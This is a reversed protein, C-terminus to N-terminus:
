RSGGSPRTKSRSRSTIWKMGERKSLAPLETADIFQSVRQPEVKSYQRLAWGIAKQIFFEKSDANERALDALLEWDTKDGYKLQFIIATRRLWMDDSSRWESIWALRDQPYEQFLHGVVSGAIGDVTDWWSKTTILHQCLPIADPKLHRRRRVLIDVAAYQYERHVLQWLDRAVAHLQNEKPPGHKALFAALLERRPGAKIGLFEFQDRMYRKMPAANEPNRSNEFAAVLPKLYDM